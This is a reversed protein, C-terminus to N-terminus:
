GAMGARLATAQFCRKSGEEVPGELALTRIETDICGVHLPSLSGTDNRQRHDNRHANFTVAPAFHEAHVNAGDSASVNQIANRRLSAWSTM